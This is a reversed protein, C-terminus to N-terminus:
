PVREFVISVRTGDPRRFSEFMRNGEVRLQLERRTRVSGTWNPFTAGSVANGDFDGAADVAYTGFFGIGGAMAAANETDTGEGRVNSAFNPIDADTLVEVFHMDATFVLMGSPRKGYAPKPGGPSDIEASVMRWTGLLKNSPQAGAPLILMLSAFLLCLGLCARPM